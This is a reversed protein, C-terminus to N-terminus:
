DDSLEYFAGATVDTGIFNFIDELLAADSPKSIKEIIKKQLDAVSM